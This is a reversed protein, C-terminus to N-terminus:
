LQITLAPYLHSVPYTAQEGFKYVQPVFAQHPLSSHLGPSHGAMLVWHIVSGETMFLFSLSTSPSRNLRQLKRHAYSVGEQGYENKKLRGHTCPRRQRQHGRSTLPWGTPPNKTPSFFFFANKQFYIDQFSGSLFSNPPWLHCEWQRFPSQLIGEAPIHSWKGAKFSLGSHLMIVTAAKQLGKSAVAIKTVKPLDM